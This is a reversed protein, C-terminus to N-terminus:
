RQMGQEFVCERPPTETLGQISPQRLARGLSWEAYTIKVTYKQKVWHAEKEREVRHHFPSEAMEIAKLKQTLERWESQTLKGTGAHGIYHLNGDDDYLGILLANVIGQNLTFGGIVAILDKYNKIKLWEQKEGIHYFSQKRKMVIGEMNEKEMVSFLPEGNEYSTVRQIHENPKIYDILLQNREELPRQTIWEGNLYLCDFIMYCISVTQKVFKVKELNRLGDRRMVEHFSPKGDEGLAIMEGDLIISDALCYRNIDLLEPYHATRENKKRNFLRVNGGDYYTLIRVGDWKIQALWEEGHPIAKAIIPEMPKIPELM